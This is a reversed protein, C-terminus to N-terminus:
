SHHGICFLLRFSGKTAPCRTKKPLKKEAQSTRARKLLIKESLRVPSRTPSRPFPPVLRSRCNSSTDIKRSPLQPTVLSLEYIRTLLSSATTKPTAYHEITPRHSFRRSSATSPRTIKTKASSDWPTETVNSLLFKRLIPNERTSSPALVDLHKCKDYVPQLTLFDRLAATASIDIETAGQYIFTPSTKEKDM